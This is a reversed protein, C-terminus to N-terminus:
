VAKETRFIQKKVSHYVEKPREQNKGNSVHNSLSLAQNSHSVSGLDRESHYEVKTSRSKGRASRNPSTDNFPDNQSDHTNINVITHQSTM